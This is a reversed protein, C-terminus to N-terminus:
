IAKEWFVAQGMQPDLEYGKFGFKAYANKAVTNGDLIELVLKCCGRELAIQEVKELMKQSLGLGRFNNDVSVDHINILPKCKFTSFMEFCNILGAAKGDVYCLVSFADNRKQLASILNDQTYQSLPEGGGMPDQAYNNLLKVLDAGHTPNHYDAQILEINNVNKSM